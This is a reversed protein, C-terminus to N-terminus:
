KQPQGEVVVMDAMHMSTRNAIHLTGFHAGAVWELSRPDRIKAEFDPRV